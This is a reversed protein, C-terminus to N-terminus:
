LTAPLQPLTALLIFSVAATACYILTTGKGKEAYHIAAGLNLTTIIALAIAQITTTM